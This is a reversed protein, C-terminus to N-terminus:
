TALGRVAGAVLESSAHEYRLTTQVNAHRAARQAVRIDKTKAYVNTIFTHRLEHFNYRHDFGAKVQWAYFADRLSREALRDGHRSYFLPQDLVDDAFRQPRAGLFKEVKYYTSEPLHVHQEKADVEDGARKFVRLDITWKV